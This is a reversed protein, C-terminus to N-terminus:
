TRKPSHAVLGISAALLMILRSDLHIDLEVRLKVEM